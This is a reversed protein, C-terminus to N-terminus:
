QRSLHITRAGEPLGLLTGTATQPESVSFDFGFTTGLAVSCAEATCSCTGGLQCLRLRKCDVEIRVGTEPEYQFCRDGFDSAWNHVCGYSDDNVEDKIPAQLACWDKWLESVALEFRARSGVFSGDGVTYSFGPYPGGMPDPGDETPYGLESDSAPAPPKAEGFRVSGTVTSGNTALELRVTDTGDALKTGEIYGLWTGDLKSQAGGTGGQGGANESGSSAGTGAGSNGSGGSPEGQTKVSGGCGLSCAVLLSM